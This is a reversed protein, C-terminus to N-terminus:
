RFYFLLNFSRQWKIITLQLCYLISNIFIYEFSKIDLLHDKKLMEIMFYLLKTLELNCASFPIRSARTNYVEPKLEGEFLWSAFGMLIQLIAMIILYIGVILINGSFTSKYNDINNDFYSKVVPTFNNWYTDYADTSRSSIRTFVIIALIGTVIGLLILIFKWYLM